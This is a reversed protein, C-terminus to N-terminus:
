VDKFIPYLSAVLLLAMSINFCRLARPNRLWNRLLSGAATWVSMTPCNVLAFV